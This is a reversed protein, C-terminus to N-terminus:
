SFSPTKRPRVVTPDQCGAVSCNFEEIALLEGAFRHTFRLDVDDCYM